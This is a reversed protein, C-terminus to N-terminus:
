AREAIRVDVNPVVALIYVPQSDAAEYSEKANKYHIFGKTSVDAASPIGDNEDAFYVYFKGDGQMTIVKRDELPDTGSKVEVPTINDITVVFPKSPGDLAEIM